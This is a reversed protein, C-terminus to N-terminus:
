PDRQLKEAVDGLRGLARAVALGDMYDRARVVAGDRVRLVVVGPFRFAEGSSRLAGEVVQEMVVTEADDGYHLGVTTIATPEADSVGWAARYTARIEERGALRPSIGPFLFPVEHVADDAYLDALADASRDLIAQQYRRVIEARQDDGTM